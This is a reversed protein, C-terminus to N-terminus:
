AEVPEEKANEGIPLLYKGFVYRMLLLLLIGGAAMLIATLQSPTLWSIGSSGRVDDRAYEIFFRWVGYCILYISATYGCKKRVVLVMLVYYLAFLFLAEYLQIPIRKAWEGGSYMPIGFVSDTKAGYCCGDFLCGIRGFGHALVICPVILSLVRNFERVHARDKFLFHGVGFYILLYCLVAGILGGYFTAGVGWEFVGTALFNYWSQFLVASLYGLVVGFVADILAFNFVKASIGVRVSFMRFSVMAALVGLVIMWVYLDIGLFSANPFM